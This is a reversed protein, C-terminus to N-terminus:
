VNLSQTASCKPLYLVCYINKNTTTKLANKIPSIEPNLFDPSVVKSANGSTTKQLYKCHLIVSPCNKKDLNKEKTPINIKIQNNCKLLHVPKSLMVM